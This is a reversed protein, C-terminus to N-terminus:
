FPSILDFIQQVFGPQQVETIRGRGGYSVRAEAIKDYAIMNDTSVDRPRIIGAVQLVRVEFNVRVEQSGAIVLNGNPLVETVVAAVLLEITEARTTVGKGETSTAGSTSLGTSADGSRSFAPLNFAYTAGANLANSSDRSRNSAVDLSAKDKIAIKVTVIDGPKTARPDRFMSASTDHWLSGTRIPPPRMPLSEVVPARDVALGTGVPTLHPERGIDLKSTQCAALLLAVMVSLLALRIM